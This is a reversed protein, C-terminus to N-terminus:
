EQDTSEVNVRPFWHLSLLHPVKLARGAARQDILSMQMTIGLMNIQPIVLKAFRTQRRPQQMEKSLCPM